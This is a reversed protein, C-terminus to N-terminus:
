EEMESDSKGLSKDSKSDEFKPAGLDKTTAMKLKNEKYQQLAVAASEQWKSKDELKRWEEGAATTLETVSKGPYKEKLKSRNENLWLMYASLPRKPANADKLKRKARKTKVKPIDEEKRKKKDEQKIEESGKKMRKKVNENDSQIDSSSSSSGSSKSSNSDNDVSNTEGVFDDDEEDDDDDDDDYSDGAAEREEGEKKLRNMYADHITTASNVTDDASVKTSATQEDSVKIRIGKNRLFQALLQKEERDVSSFTYHSGNRMTIEIDFTKLSKSATTPLFETDSSGLDINQVDELRLFIPPKHIFMLCRELPYLLGSSAKFSCSVCRAGSKSTYTGPVTIKRDALVHFLKCVVDYRAGSITRTLKDKGYKEALAEDSLSLEVEEDEENTNFQLIVFPYRTQGQKLPKDVSVVFFMQRSDKHPLLFARIIQTYPIKYDFSKGHLDVFTSYLRMDYRGRPVLCNVSSLVAIVDSDSATVVSAGKMVDMKFQELRDVEEDNENGPPVFFRIEMLSIQDDHEQALELAAENKNTNCATVYRLPIEFNTKREFQFMMSDPQFAVDGWNWGKLCQEMVQLQINYNQSLFNKLRVEEREQFGDFWFSKERNETSTGEITIKLCYGKCRRIWFASKLDVTEIVQDPVMTDSRKFVIVDQRLRLLGTSFNGCQEILIGPYDLSPSSM